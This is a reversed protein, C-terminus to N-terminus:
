ARCAERRAMTLAHPRVEQQIRLTHPPSYQNQHHHHGMSTTVRTSFTERHPSALIPGPISSVSFPSPPASSESPPLPDFNMTRPPAVERCVACGLFRAIAPHPPVSGPGRSAALWMREVDGKCRVVKLCCWEGPPLSSLSNVRSSVRAVVSDIRLSADRTDEERGSPIVRVNDFEPPLPPPPQARVMGAGGAREKGGM